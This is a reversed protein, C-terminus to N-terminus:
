LGQNIKAAQDHRALVQCMAAATDADMQYSMVYDRFRNNLGAAVGALDRQFEKYERREALHVRGQNDVDDVAYRRMPALSRLGSNCLIKNMFLKGM